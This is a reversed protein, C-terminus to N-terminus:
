SEVERQKATKRAAIRCGSHKQSSRRVQSATLPEVPYQCAVFRLLDRVLAPRLLYYCRLNGDEHCDVLGAQRLVALHQSVNPQRVALLDRIATVCKPGRALEALLALRVPHGLTKLLWAGATMNDATLNEM